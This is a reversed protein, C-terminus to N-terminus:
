RGPGELSLGERALKRKVWWLEDYPGDLGELPRGAGPLGDFDGREQAERIRREALSEVLAQASPQWCETM